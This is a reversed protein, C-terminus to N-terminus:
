DLRASGVTGSSERGRQEADLWFSLDKFPSGGGGVVGVLPIHLAVLVGCLFTGIRGVLNRPQYFKRLKEICIIQLKAKQPICKKSDRIIYKHTESCKKNM